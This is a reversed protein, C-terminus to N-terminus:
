PVHGVGVLLRRSAQPRQALEAREAPLLGVLQHVPQEPRGGLARADPELPPPLDHRLDVRELLLVAAAGAPVQHAAEQDVVADGEGGSGQPLTCGFSFAISSTNTEPAAIVGNPRKRSRGGRSRTSSATRSARESACIVGPSTWAAITPFATPPR